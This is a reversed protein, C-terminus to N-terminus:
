KTLPKDYPLQITDKGTKYGELEERFPVISSHTPMFTLFDKHAKFALLIRNEEFVPAGWKITEKAKPAVKKLLARLERLQSRAPLPAKGIYATVTKTHSATAMYLLYNQFSPEVAM